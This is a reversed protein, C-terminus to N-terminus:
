FLRESVFVRDGAQLLVDQADGSNIADLDVSVTQTGRGKIQRTLRIKGSQAISNLGGALSIAQVLTMGPQFPFNGPKKVQGLVSIQKSRYEKVRVVVSPDQLIEEEILRRRVVRALEQPELGAVEVTQLYPLDVTGDSAVQYEEPLGEEGVIQLHFIDGPGLTTSETPPPLAVKPATTRAGCASAVISVLVLLTSRRGLGSSRQEIGASDVLGV